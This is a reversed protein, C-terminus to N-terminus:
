PYDRTPKLKMTVNMVYSQYCKSNLQELQVNSCWKPGLSGESTTLAAKRGTGVDVPASVLM